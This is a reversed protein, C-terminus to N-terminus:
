TTHTSANAHTCIHTYAHTHTRTLVTIEKRASEFDACEYRTVTIVADPIMSNDSSNTVPLILAIIVDFPIGYVSRRINTTAHIPEWSLGDSSALCM